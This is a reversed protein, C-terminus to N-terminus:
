QGDGPDRRAEFRPMTVHGEHSLGSPRILLGITKLVIRLDLWASRHDVYWVDLDFKEEWTLANRGNVQAWGTLGPKVELRRAQHADYHAVYEALLPRPGVLAMDGAAVNWLSPLEDLSSARLFQGLLTLRAADDEDGPLPHRMTRFKYMKFTTGGKGSRDQVFVIGKGMTMRIALAIIALLPATVVLAM